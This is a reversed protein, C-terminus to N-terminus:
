TEGVWSVATIGALSRVAAPDKAMVTTLGVGPPPVDLLTVNATVGALPNNIPLREGDEATKPLEPKVMVTVPPPNTALETTRQAPALRAVVKTEAVFSVTTIGAESRVEPPALAMVTRLGPGGAVVELVTLKVTVWFGVGEM